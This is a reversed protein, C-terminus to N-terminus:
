KFMLLNRASLVFLSEKGGLFPDYIGLLFVLLSFPSVVHASLLMSCAFSKHLEQLNVNM